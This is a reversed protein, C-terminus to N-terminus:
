AELELLGDPPSVIVRRGGLDVETVIASVAPILRERGDARVVWFDHGAGAWVEELVGLPSGAPTEVRCGVLDFAYFRDPPLPRVAARPIAVLRGVLAQADGIGESGGLKVIPAAGQFWVAEVARREGSRPPVLYCETLDRLREPEDTLAELRVEGRRGQPRVIRGVAILDAGADGPSGERNVTGEHGMVM